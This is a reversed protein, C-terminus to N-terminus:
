LFINYLSVLYNANAKWKNLGTCDSTDREYPTKLWCPIIGSCLVLILCQAFVSIFSFGFFTQFIFFSSCKKIIWLLHFSFYKWHRLYNDKSNMYDMNQLLFCYKLTYTFENMNIAVFHYRGFSKFWKLLLNSFPLGNM